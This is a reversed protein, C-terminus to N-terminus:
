KDKERQSEKNDLINLMLGAELKFAEQTNIIDKLIYESVEKFRKFSCNKYTHVEKLYETANLVNEINIIIVENLTSPETYQIRRISKRDYTHVNTNMGYNTMYKGILEHQKPEITVNENIPELRLSPTGYLDKLKLYYFELVLTSNSSYLGCEKLDEISAEYLKIVIENIRM